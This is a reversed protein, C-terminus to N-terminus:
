WDSLFWLLVLRCKKNLHNLHTRRYLMTYRYIYIYPIVYRYYIPTDNPTQPSTLHIGVLHWRLLHWWGFYGSIWWEQTSQRKMRNIGGPVIKLSKADKQMRKRHNLFGLLMKGAEGLSISVVLKGAQDTSPQQLDSDLLRQTLKPWLFFCGDWFFTVFVYFQWTLNNVSRKSPPDTPCGMNWQGKTITSPLTFISFTSLKRALLFGSDYKAEWLIQWRGLPDSALCVCVCM